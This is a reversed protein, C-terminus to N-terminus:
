DRPVADLFELAADIFGFSEPTAFHDVNRLLVCGPTPCRMSSCPRGPRAFDNEGVVVLVPCTVHSSLGRDAHRADRRPADHDAALAVPDNGPQSAYQAFLRRWTTTRLRRRGRDRRRHAQTARRRDRVRQPRHRRARAPPFARARRTALRLSRSPAGALLRGRRGPRDPLADVVRTTLDAYADPDHPKPASGHGLLDVGIVDRGADALLDTFGRQWTTPSRAAGDTSWCWRRARSPRAVTM